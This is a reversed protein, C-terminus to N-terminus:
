VKLSSLVGFDFYKKEQQEGLYFAAKTNDPKWAGSTADKSSFLLTTFIIVSFQYWLVSLSFIFYWDLFMYWQWKLLRMKWLSYGTISVSYGGYTDLSKGKAFTTYGPIKNPSTDLLNLQPCLVCIFPIQLRYGGLWPNQICSYNPVLFKM